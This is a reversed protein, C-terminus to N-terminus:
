LGLPPLRYVSPTAESTRHRRAPRQPLASPMPPQEKPVSSSVVASEVPPLPPYAVVMDVSRPIEETRAFTTAHSAPGSRTLGAIALAAAVIAFTAPLVRIV